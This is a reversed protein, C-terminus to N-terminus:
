NLFLFQLNVIKFLFIQQFTILPYRLSFTLFYIQIGNGRGCELNSKLHFKRYTKNANYFKYMIYM